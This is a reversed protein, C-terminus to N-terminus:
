LKLRPLALAFPTRGFVADLQVALAQTRAHIYRLRRHNGGKILWEGQHRRGFYDM